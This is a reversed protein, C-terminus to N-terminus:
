PYPKRSSSRSGLARRRERLAAGAAPQPGRSRAPGDRSSGKWSSSSRSSSSSSSSSSRRGLPDPALRRGVPPAEQRPEKAPTAASRLCLRSLFFSPFFFCFKFFVCFVFCFVDGAVRKKIDAGEERREEKWFLSRQTARRLSAARSFFPFVFKQLSIKLPLSRSPLSLSFPIKLSTLWLCFSLFIKLKKKKQKQM